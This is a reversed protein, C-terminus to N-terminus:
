AALAYEYNNGNSEHSLSSTGYRYPTREEGWVFHVPRSHYIMDQEPFWEVCENRASTANEYLVDSMNYAECPQAILLCSEPFRRMFELYLSLEAKKYEANGRRVSEPDIEVVHNDTMRDYAYRIHIGAFLENWKKLISCIFETENKM